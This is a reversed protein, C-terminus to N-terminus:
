ERSSKTFHASLDENLPTSPSSQSNQSSQLVANRQKILEAIQMCCTLLMLAAGFVIALTIVSYPWQLVGIEREPNIQSLSLGYVILLLLFVAMLVRVVIALYHQIVVPLYRTFLDIGVHENRRLTQSAGLVCLWMFLSQAIDVSAIIPAGFSRAVAAVFVCLVIILLATVAVVEEIRSLLVLWKNM